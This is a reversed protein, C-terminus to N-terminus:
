DTRVWLCRPGRYNTGRYPRNRAERVQAWADKETEARGPSTKLPAIRLARAARVSV